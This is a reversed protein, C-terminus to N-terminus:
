SLQGTFWKATARMGKAMSVRPQWGLSQQAISADVLLSGALRDFAAPRRCTSALARMIGVPIPWLRPAVDLGAAIARVLDPTSIDVDALTLTRSVYGDQLLAAAVADALNYVYILSRQNDVSALPLPRRAAIWRMLKLLNGKQGPGYILPPRLITLDFSGADAAETLLQEAHWKSIGYNDQPAPTDNGSYRRLAQLPGSYSEGNVKISSMFLFRRIGCTSAQQALRRTVEVNIAAYEDAAAVDHLGGAHTRAALHIVGDCDTLAASWETHADLEGVAVFKDVPVLPPARGAAVVRLGSERLRTVVATGVFGSAGTVLIQEAARM